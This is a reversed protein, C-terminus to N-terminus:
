VRGWETLACAQVYVSVAQPNCCEFPTAHLSMATAGYRLLSIDSHSHRRHRVLIREQRNIGIVLNFLFRTNVQLIACSWFRMLRQQFVMITVTRLAKRSLIARCVCRNSAVKQKAGFMIWLMCICATPADICVPCLEPCANAPYQVM